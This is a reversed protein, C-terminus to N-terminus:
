WTRHGRRSAQRDLHGRRQRHGRSDGRGLRQWRSTGWLRRVYPRGRAAYMRAKTRNGCTSMSCWCEFDAEEARGLM